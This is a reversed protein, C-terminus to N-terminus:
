NVDTVVMMPKSNPDSKMAKSLQEEARIKSPSSFFTVRTGQRGHLSPQFVLKSVLYRTGTTM